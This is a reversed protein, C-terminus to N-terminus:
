DYQNSWFFFFTLPVNPSFPWDSPYSICIEPAVSHKLVLLGRLSYENAFSFTPDSSTSFNAQSYPEPIQGLEPRAGNGDFHCKLQSFSHVGWLPSLNDPSSSLLSLYTSHLHKSSFLDSFSM